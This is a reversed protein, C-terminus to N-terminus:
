TLRETGPLMRPLALAFRGLTGAARGLRSRPADRGSARAHQELVRRPPLLQRRVFPRLGGRPTLLGDILGMEAYLQPASLAPHPNALQAAARARVGGGASIRPLGLLREGARLAAPIVRAFAPYQELVVAIAGPDLQDGFRDWWASLDSAHRLGAFGDRAYFLLLTTLEYAPEPRWSGAPAGAPALLRDQAFRAEYRDGRWHLEVPPLEGRVHALAHHLLPLGDEDVHDESPGYGLTRVAAVAQELQDPSVLLDIDGCTRRGVDGYITEALFPGKLPTSRIGADALTHVIQATALQVFTAHRRGADMVQRCQEALHGGCAEPALEILRPGLAGLVRLERLVHALRVMDSRDALEAALAVHQRRREATGAALLTLRREASNM